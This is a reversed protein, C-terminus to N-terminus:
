EGLEGETLISIDTLKRGCVECVLKKEHAVRASILAKEQIARDLIDDDEKDHLCDMCEIVGDLKIGVMIARDM